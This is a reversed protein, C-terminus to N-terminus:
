EPQAVAIDIVDDVVPAADAVVSLDVKKPPGYQWVRLVIEHRLQRNLYLDIRNDSVVDAIEFQRARKPEVYQCWM